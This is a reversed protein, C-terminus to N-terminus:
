RRCIVQDLSKESLQSAHLNVEFPGDIDMSEIFYVYEFDTTKFREKMYELIAEDWTKKRRWFEVSWVLLVESKSSAKKEVIGDILERDLEESIPLNDFDVSVSINNVAGVYSPASGIGVKSLKVPGIENFSLDDNLAQKLVGEVFTDAKGPTFISFESQSLNFHCNLLTPTDAKLDNKQLYCYVGSIFGAKIAQLRKVNQSTLETVQIGIEHDRIRVIADSQGHSDDDNVRIEYSTKEPCLKKLLQEAWFIEKEQKGTPVVRPRLVQKATGHTIVASVAAWGGDKKGVM